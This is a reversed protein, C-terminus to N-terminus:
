GAADVTAMKPKRPLFLLLPSIFPLSLFLMWPMM